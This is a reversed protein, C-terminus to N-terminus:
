QTGGTASPLLQAEVARNIEALQAAAADAATPNTLSASTPAISAEPIPVYLAAGPMRPVVRLIRVDLEAEFSPTASPASAPDLRAYLVPLIGASPAESGLQMLASIAERADSQYGLTGLFADGGAWYQGNPRDGVPLYSSAITPVEVSAGPAIEGIAYVGGALDTMFAGHLAETSDNRVRAIRSGDLEFRVAGGISPTDDERVFATEWLGARMTELTRHEAGERVLPGDGAGNSGVRMAVAGPALAVDVAAPRTYFYGTYRRSIGLESGEVVDVLEVRRYRMLVGKGVYGVFFTAMVCLLALIPTTILALTPQKRREVITFNVPGVLVVYALLVIGVLVLAPRYGENPDLATRVQAINPGPTWEDLPRDLGRAFQVFPHVRDDSAAVSRAIARFVEQVEPRNVVSAESLDLDTIWVLGFGVRVQCGFVDRTTGTPCALPAGAVGLVPALSPTSTEARTISGVTRRVFPHDLDAARTPMVVLHGGARVWAELAALEPEGARGLAPVTGVAFLVNSWGAASDPLLLDGSRPDSSAVGIPVEIERTGSGYYATPDVATVRTGVLPARLRPPDDLVVIPRASSGYNLAATATSLTSGGVRYSVNFTLGDEFAPVTLSTVRGERAPLDLPARHVSVVHDWTRIEVSVEGQLASQTRNQARVVLTTYGGSLFADHGFIGDAQLEVPPPDQARVLATSALTHLALGATLALSLLARLKM